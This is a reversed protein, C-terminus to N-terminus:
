YINEAGLNMKGSKKELIYLSTTGVSHEPLFKEIFLFVLKVFRSHRVYHGFHFSKKIKLGAQAAMALLGPRWIPSIHRNYKIQKPSFDSSYGKILCELRARASEMNPTSVIVIGNDSLSENCSRLFAWPNEVHEIIDVATIIDFKSGGVDNLTFGNDLNIEYINKGVKCKGNWSTSSVNLGSDLLQAPLAGDGSGLDLLRASSNHESLYNVVFRHVNPDAQIRYDKYFWGGNKIKTLTSLDEKRARSKM